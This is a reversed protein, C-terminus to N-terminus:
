ASVAPCLRAGEAHQIWYQFLHEYATAMKDGTFTRARALSRRQAAILEEPAICLQNLLAALSRADHFYLAGDQWVERLSPIDNALVACGCLAAELPALGFPEYRSTCLYMASERFIRLLEESALCGLFTVGQPLLIKDAPGNRVDGAVFVPIPSRVEALLAVNKAEDWLRGATIAQLKRSVGPSARVTRGNPIVVPGNSLHFNHALSDAMWRTPAIVAHARSLGEQVLQLYRRLWPSDELPGPRCARAWSLVDSHATVIRPMNLPLAGFCFQNSHLLDAGFDRAMSLLAPAAETWARENGEMWELPAQLTAWSFQGSWQSATEEFWRQQEGSPARGLSVLHLSWGRTLMQGALEQTFTWVGGVTDTTILIRM